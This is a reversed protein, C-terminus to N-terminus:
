GHYIGRFHSLGQHTSFRVDNNDTYMYVTGMDFEFSADVEEYV